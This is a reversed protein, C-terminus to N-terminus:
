RVGWSAYRNDRLDRSRASAILDIRATTAGTEFPQEFLDATSHPKVWAVAPLASTPVAAAPASRQASPALLLAVSAAAALVASGAGFLAYIVNRRPKPRIAPPGGLAAALARELAAQEDSGGAFPAGLARLVDADHHPRGDALAERLRASEVLEEASPAALPDELCLEILRENTAPDLETPRLAAQLLGLLEAEEEPPLMPEQEDAQSV